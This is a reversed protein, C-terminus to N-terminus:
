GNVSSAHGNRQELLKLLRDNKVRVIRDRFSIDNLVARKLTNGVQETSFIRPKGTTYPKAHGIWSDWACHLANYGLKLISVMSMDRTAAVDETSAKESATEDTWEYYFYGDSLSRLAEARSIRGEKYYDLAQERSLRGEDMLDFIRIDFLIMGTPLAAVPQIGSMMAACERPYQELSFATESGQIGQNQWRFVFTNEGASASGVYPAGIVLPGKDYHDYIATFAEPFFPKYWPEHEHFMFDQDSDLMLLLDYGGQRAMKVARNRLMGIPTDALTKIDLRELRPDGQMLQITQVAWDRTSPHENQIGSNGGYAFCVCLCSLKRETALEM